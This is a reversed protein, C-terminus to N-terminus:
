LGFDGGLATVATLTAPPGPPLADLLQLWRQALLLPGIVGHARRRWAAADQWAATDEDRGTLLFLHRV